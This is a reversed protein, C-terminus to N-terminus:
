IEMYTESHDKLYGEFYKWTESDDTFEEETHLNFISEIYIGDLINEETGQYYYNGLEQRNTFVIDFTVMHIEGKYEVDIQHQVSYQETIM